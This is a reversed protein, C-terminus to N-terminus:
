LLEMDASGSIGLVYKGGPAGDCNPGLLQM